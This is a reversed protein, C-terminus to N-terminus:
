GGQQYLQLITVFIHTVLHAVDTGTPEFQLKRRQSITTTIGYDLFKDTQWFRLYAPTCARYSMLNMKYQVQRNLFM